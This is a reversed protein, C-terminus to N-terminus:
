GIAMHLLWLLLLHGPYMGYALWRPVRIGTNTRCLMFPLSLIALSQLRMMSFAMGVVAYLPTGVALEPKIRLGFLRVVESSGSGWYLCFAVMLAALGGASRRALYMLIILLVGRWGYDMPQMAALALCLLPAWIHSGWWRERMGAIALLGLLLTAMVNFESIRHNLALMYFPQSVLGILLLRLAYRPWSRTREFGTVIGWCFLPFAIRGIVRLEPVGPLFVVGIHDILMTVMAVVRILGADANLHKSIGRDAAATM